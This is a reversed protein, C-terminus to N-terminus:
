NLGAARRLRTREEPSLANAPPVPASDAAATRQQSELLQEDNGTKVVGRPTPKAGEALVKGEKESTPAVPAAEKLVRGIYTKYAEDLMNTDVNKLIAEMVERTRGSLPKLVQSMKNTREMRAIRKESEELARMTDQLRKNSESLKAHITKQDGALNAHEFETMFAEFVKRGFQNQRVVQLDDKMETLETSLRVEVITNIQEALASMERELEVAMREKEAVLRQAYEAELDRFREIDGRLGDLEASMVETVKADLAEILVETETAWRENLEAVVAASTELRAAEAAENVHQMIATTLERKTEETLVEAQLLSELLQVNM